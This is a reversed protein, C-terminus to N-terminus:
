YTRNRKLLDSIEFWMEESESILRVTSLSLQKKINEYTTNELLDFKTNLELLSNALGEPFDFDRYLEEYKHSWGLSFTPVGQSLGNIIGHFRSSFGGKCNGIIGKLELPNDISVIPISIALRENIEKCIRQDAEGEHMLFFPTLRKNISTKIHELITLIYDAHSVVGSSVVKENVIVFYDGPISEKVEAPNLAITFDPAIRIKKKEKVCTIEDMFKFSLKDRVYIIDVIETLRVIQKKINKKNFPGMAQPLLIIKAGRKKMKSYYSIRQKIQKINWQDGYKFGSSDLISSIDDDTAFGSRRLKKRFLQYKSNPILFLTPIDFLKPVLGISVIQQLSALGPRVQHVIKENPVRKKLENIISLLMLEAGKNVFQTGIVEIM